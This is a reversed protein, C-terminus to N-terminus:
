TSLSPLETQQDRCGNGSSKRPCSAHLMQGITEVCAGCGQGAGCVNGIDETSEAGQIIALRVSRDSVGRCLCLIM